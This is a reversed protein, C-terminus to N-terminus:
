KHKGLDCPSTKKFDLEIKKNIGDSSSEDDGTGNNNNNNNGNENMIEGRMVGPRTCEIFTELLDLCRHVARYNNCVSQQQIYNM